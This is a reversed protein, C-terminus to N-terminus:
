TGAHNIDLIELPVFRCLFLILVKPLIFGSVSEKNVYRTSLLGILRKEVMALGAFYVLVLLFARPIIPSLSLITAMVRKCYTNVDNGLFLPLIDRKDFVKEILFFTIVRVLTGFYSYPTLFSINTRLIKVSTIVALSSATLVTPVVPVISVVLFASSASYVFVM